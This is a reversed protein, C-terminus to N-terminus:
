PGEVEDSAAEGRSAARGAFFGHTLDFRPNAQAGGPGYAQVVEGLRAAAPAAAEPRRRAEALSEVHLTRTPFAYEVGLDRALELLSLLLEHRARLEDSWSPVEVFVYFLVELAYDGFNNFHIEYYDKRTKPHAAVIARAGEVFAQMQEATTSYTLGLVVKIRRYRRMGMNDIATDTLKANPVTVLSNYFTRVRTTRFGVDEVTGEIGGIVVWDGIQFPRDIFIVLSGFINAVTDKAALAFALGGLGLGAVLSAVDVHLNQLIFIGGIVIVFTKFTRRILPVLQDDLRTATKAAKAELLDSLVDIQRYFFWVGSGVALVRVALSIIGDVLSSFGLAPFGAWFVGAMMLGSLPLASRQVSMELRPAVRGAWARLRSALLYFVVGVGALHKSPFPDGPRNPNVIAAAEPLEDGALHHDTVLVQIGMENARRVGAVSAIGNDVTVILDPKMPAAADVVQPSLGYGFAFRSPVLYSVRAAGLAKLGLMALAIPITMAQQSEMARYLHQQTIHAIEHALVAAIESEDDAALILGSFLAVVGGPAAFANVVDQNIVVFTFPKDPRDSHSALRYGMDEFYANILPDENLVEYARMQRVLAKAYEAEEARSLVTDASAGMDPLDLRDTQAVSALSVCSTIVAACLKSIFNYNRKVTSMREGLSETKTQVM